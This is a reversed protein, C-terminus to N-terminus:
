ARNGDSAGLWRDKLLPVPGGAGQSRQTLLVGDVGVRMSVFTDGM